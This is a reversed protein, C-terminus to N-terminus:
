LLSSFDNPAGPSKVTVPVLTVWPTIEAQSFFFLPSALHGTVELLSDSGKGGEGEWSLVGEPEAWIWGIVGVSWALFPGRKVEGQKIGKGKGRKGRNEAQSRLATRLTHRSHAHTQTCAAAHAGASM